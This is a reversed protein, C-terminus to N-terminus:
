ANCNEDMELNSWHVVQIAETITTGGNGRAKMNQTGNPNFVYIMFRFNSNTDGSDTIEVRYKRQDRWCYFVCCGIVQDVASFKGEAKLQDIIDRDNMANGKKAIV